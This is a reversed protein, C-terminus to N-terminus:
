QLGAERAGLAFASTVKVGLEEAFHTRQVARSGRGGGEGCEANVCLVGGWGGVWGM